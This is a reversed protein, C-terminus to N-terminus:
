ARDDSVEEDRNYKDYLIDEYVKRPTDVCEITIVTKAKEGYIKVGSLAVIQKDDYWLIGNGVDCYFKLTNDLDPKKVHFGPYEKQRAKVPEFVCVMNVRLPGGFPERGCMKAKLLLRVMTVEESQPDFTVVHKGRRSFRARAKPIPKGPITISFSQADEYM